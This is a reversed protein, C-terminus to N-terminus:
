EPALRFPLLPRRMIPDQRDDPAPRGPPPKRWAGQGRRLRRGWGSEGVMERSRGASALGRPRPPRARGPHILSRAPVPPRTPVPAGSGGRPLRVIM